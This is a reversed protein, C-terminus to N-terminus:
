FKMLTQQKLFQVSVTTKQNGHTERRRNAIKKRRYFHSEIQFVLLELYIFPKYKVDTNPKQLIAHLKKLM